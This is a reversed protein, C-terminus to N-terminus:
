VIEHILVRLNVNTKTIIKKNCFYDFSLTSNFIRDARCVGNSAGFVAARAPINGLSSAGSGGLLM